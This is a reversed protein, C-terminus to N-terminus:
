LCIERHAQNDSFHGQLYDSLWKCGEQVIADTDLATPLDWLTVTGDVGAAALQDGKPSFAVGHLGDPYGSFTTLLEGQSNWLRITRDASSSAIQTGDPSFAVETVAGTHGELKAILTGDSRWLRITQDDSASAILEGNPSYIASNIVAEHGTLTKIPKGDPTWLRVTTDDSASVIHQSTPSFAVSKVGATHGALTAALAGDPRWLKVTQDDSASAILQGDQRYALGTIWGNHQDRAATPTTQQPNSQSHNGVPWFGIKGARDGSVLMQGDPSFALSYVSTNNNFAKILTGDPQWLKITRDTSSSAVIQGSPSFVVERADNSHAAIQELLSTELQWLRVTGDYGTSAIQRGDASFAVGLVGDTHGTFTKLLKGDRQWLRVTNDHGASAFFRGDPSFDIGDVIGDHEELQAILKHSSINQIDWFGITGDASASILRTGDPSFAIDRVTREHGKLEQQQQGNLTWLRITGDGSGTAVVPPSVTNAPSFAVTDIKSGPHASFSAILQGDAQWLYVRGSEDASALIQGDASFAVANVESTHGKLTAVETGDPRWLKVTTDDSASAILQSNQSIALGWIEGQHGEFTQQLTGNPSWLKITKDKSVSAFFQGNKAFAIATTTAHHATLRNREDARSVAARLSRVADARVSENDIWSTELMEQATLAAVLADLHQGSNFLADSAAVTAKVEGLTARQWGWLALGGLGSAIALGASLGSVALRRRRSERKIAQTQASTSQQIFAKETPALEDERRELWEQAASLQKGRLLAAPERGTAEWQQITQRLTEQWRRFEADTQIWYDLRGWARILAEHIIEATEETTEKGTTVLRNTIVLRASALQSVLPWNEEGIEERQAMRRSAATGSGPVILQLFIRQSRQQEEASLQAYVTEAYNALATELGGIKQYAQHTLMGAAQEEWLKALTFSLLPLRGSQIVSNATTDAILKDTLGPELAIQAQAAPKAIAARLETQSMPGLNYSGAQLADSLRRDGLAHGYFDARMTILFTFNPASRVSNLLLDLFPQKEEASSLTYLEEFQDVVVLVKNRAGKREAQHKVQNITGVLAEFPNPGPRCVAVQWQQTLNPILGAFVVSSKGNGSPGVVAVFPNREVATLLSQVAHERGFFLHADSRNFTSLGKYPCRNASGLKAWSLPKVAPNQCLVPLWSAGPFENELGQLKRRAQRIAAYLSQREEVFATLFHQLFAQAVRNPVPERMVIVQPLQLQTLAEALGIGDCSNFIALQLGNSIAQKLAEKLQEITLSNHAAQENIYLRGTQGETRSHGAFFLIDWGKKDWLAKDFTQRSPAALFEIHVNEKTHSLSRLAQQEFATDIGSADGLIALIRAQQRPKSIQVPPQYDLRSLAMEAKPYDKFFYWCHWPLQRALDNRTEFIVRIEDTPSLQSRMQREIERLGPASLWANMQQEIQQSYSEFSQQSVHTVGGLEIELEDEELAQHSGFARRLSLRNSLARYTSRWIRYSEVLAPASPLSGTYQSLQLRATVSPFGDRLNGAGLSIVVTKEM